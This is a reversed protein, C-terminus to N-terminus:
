DYLEDCVDKYLRRMTQDDLLQYDRLVTHTNWVAILEDYCLRKPCLTLFYFFMIGRILERKRLTGYKQENFQSSKIRDRMRGIMQHIAQLCVGMEVAIMRRDFGREILEAVKKQKPSLVSYIQERQINGAVMDVEHNNDSPDTFSGGSEISVREVFQYDKGRYNYIPSPNSSFTQHSPYMRKYILHLLNICM